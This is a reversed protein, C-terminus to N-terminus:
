FCHAARDQNGTYIQTLILSEANMAEKAQSSEAFKYHVASTHRLKSKYTVIDIITSVAYWM